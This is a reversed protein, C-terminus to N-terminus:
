VSIGGGDGSLFSWFGTGLNFQGGQITGGAEAQGATSALAFPGSGGTGISGTMTWGLSFTQSMGPAPSLLLAALWCAVERKM